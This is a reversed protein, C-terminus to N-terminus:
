RVNVEAGRFSAGSLQESNERAVQEDSLKRIDAVFFPSPKSPSECCVGFLKFCSQKLYPVQKSLPAAQCPCNSQYLAIHCAKCRVYPTISGSHAPFTSRIERMSRYRITQLRATVVFRLISYYMVSNEKLQCLITKGPTQTRKSGCPKKSMRVQADKVNDSAEYYGNRASILRQMM